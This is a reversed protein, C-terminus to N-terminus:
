RVFETAFAVAIAATSKAASNRAECGARTATGWLAESDLGTIQPHKITREPFRAQAYGFYTEAARAIPSHFNEILSSRDQQNVRRNIVADREEIGACAVGAAVGFRPQALRKGAEIIFMFQHDRGLGSCVGIVLALPARVKGSQAHSTGGLRAQGPKSQIRYRQQMKMTRFDGVEGIIQEVGQRPEPFFSFNQMQAHVTEVYVDNFMDHRKRHKARHHDIVINKPRLTFRDNRFQGRKIKSNHGAHREAAAQIAPVPKANAPNLIGPVDGAGPFIVTGIDSPAAIKMKECLFLPEGGRLNRERPHQALRFYTARYGACRAHRVQQGIQLDGALDEVVIKQLSYALSLQIKGSRADVSQTRMLDACRWRARIDRAAHHVLALVPGGPWAHGLGGIAARQAPYPPIGRRLDACLPRAFGGVFWQRSCHRARMRIDCGARVAPRRLRYRRDCVIVCQFQWSQLGEGDCDVVSHYLPLLRIAEPGLYPLFVYPRASLLLRQLCGDRGAPVALTRFNAIFFYRQGAYFYFPADTKPLMILVGALVPLLLSLVVATRSGFFRSLLVFIVLWAPTFFVLKNLVVPYFMLLLVLVAGAMWYKKRVVFVAFAFPLLASSMIGTLYSIVTPLGLKERYDYIDELGVLRFNYIAGIAITAAALILILGLVLDLTKASLVFIQRIPFSILLAPLLFAVASVAASLGALRHDYDLNSFCNIWLYSLLMSYLYFGVLYGFSFRVHVFFLAVTGFLATVAAAIHLRAPDYFIHFTAATFYDPSKFYSVYVLSVCCIVCHFCILVALWSPREAIITPAKRNAIM